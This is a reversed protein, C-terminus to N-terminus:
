LTFSPLTPAPPKRQGRKSFNDFLAVAMSGCGVILSTALLIRFIEVMESPSGSFGLAAPAYALSPVMTALNM